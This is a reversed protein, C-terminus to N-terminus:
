SKAATGRFRNIRELAIRAAETEAAKKSPGAGRGAEEGNIRVLAEFRRRHAPGEERVVEYEVVAGAPGAQLEEQLLGKPNEESFVFRDTSFPRDRFLRELTRRAADLGGDLYVAGFVAEVADELVADNEHTRSNRAAEGLRLHEGLGIERALASLSPGRVLSSRMVTMAGEEADPNDRFLRESVVLELVADGLFELRQYSRRPSDASLASGHTLAQELLGPDRFSHGIREEIERFRSM